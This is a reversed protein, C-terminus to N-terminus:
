VRERVIRCFKPAERALRGGMWGALRLARREGIVFGAVRAIWAIRSVRRNLWTHDIEFTVFTPEAM